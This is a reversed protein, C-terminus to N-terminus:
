RKFLRKMLDSGKQKANELASGSESPTEGGTRELLRAMRQGQVHSPEAQLCKAIWRKAEGHHARGRASNALYYAAQAAAKGVGGEREFVRTWVTASATTRHDAAVDPNNCVVWGLLLEVESTRQGPASKRLAHIQTQADAWGRKDILKQIRELERGVDVPDGARQPGGGMQKQLLEDKYEALKAPNNLVNFAVSVTQFATQVRGSEVTGRFSARDPHLLVCLQRHATSIQQPTAGREVGLMAWHTVGAAARKEVTALAVLSPDSPATM